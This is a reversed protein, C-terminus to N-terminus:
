HWGGADLSEDAAWCSTGLGGGVVVGRAARDRRRPGGDPRDRQLDYIQKAPWSKDLRSAPPGPWGTQRTSEKSKVPSTPVL